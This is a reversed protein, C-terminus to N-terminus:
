RKLVTNVYNRLETLENEFRRIQRAQEQVVNNLYSVRQELVPVTTDRENIPKFAQATTKPKYSKYQEM